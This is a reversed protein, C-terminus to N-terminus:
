GRRAAAGKAVRDSGSVVVAGPMCALDPADQLQPAALPHTAPAAPGSTPTQPTAAPRREPKRGEIARTSRAGTRNQALASAPAPRPPPATRRNKRPQAAAKALQSDRQRELAEPRRLSRPANPRQPAPNPRTERLTENARLMLYGLSARKTDLWSGLLRTTTFIPLVSLPGVIAIQVWVPHGVTADAVAVAPAFALTSALAVIPYGAGARRVARVLFVPSFARMDRRVQRLAFCLPAFLAGVTFAPLTSYWPTGAVLMVTPVAFFATTVLVGDVAFDRAGKVLKGFTPLEPVDGEGESSRLLIERGMAAVVSLVP